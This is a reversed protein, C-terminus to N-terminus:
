RKFGVHGGRRLGLADKWFDWIKTAEGKFSNYAREFESPYNEYLDYLEQAHEIVGGNAKRPKSPDQNFPAPSHAHVYNYSHVPNGGKEDEVFPTHRQLPNVPKPKANDAAIKKLIEDRQKRADEDAQQKEKAKKEKAKKEDYKGVAAAM